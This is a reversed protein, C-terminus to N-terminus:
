GRNEGGEPIASVAEDDIGLSDCTERLKDATVKVRPTGRRKRVEFGLIGFIETIEYISMQKGQNGVIATQIKPLDYKGEQFTISGEQSESTAVNLIGLIVAKQPDFDGGSGQRKTQKQVQEIAWDVWASDDANTALGILPYWLDHVRTNTTLSFVEISNALMAFEERERDTFITVNHPREPEPRTTLFISRSTTAPDKYGGRKHLITAGFIPTRRGEWGIIQQEMSRAVATQRSFRDAILAEKRRYLYDAEEIFATTNVGLERRLTPESDRGKLGEWDKMDSTAPPIPNNVLQAMVKMISSKGTNHEGFLTLIPFLALEGIKHTLTAYYVCLKAENENLSSVRELATIYPQLQTVGIQSQAEITNDNEHVMTFM